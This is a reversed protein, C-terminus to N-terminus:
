EQGDLKQLCEACYPEAPLKELRVAHIPKGCEVCIGYTGDDIRKIAAEVKEIQRKARKAPLEKRQKREQRRLFNDYDSRYKARTSPEDGAPMEREVRELYKALEARIEELDIGM